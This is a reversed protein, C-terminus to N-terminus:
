ETAQQSKANFCNTTAIYINKFILQNLKKQVFFGNHRRFFKLMDKFVQIQLKSEFDSIASVAQRRTNKSASSNDAKAIFQDYQNGPKLIM